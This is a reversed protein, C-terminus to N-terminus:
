RRAPGVVGFRGPACARAIMVTRCDFHQPPGDGGGGRRGSHARNRRVVSVEVKPMLIAQDRVSYALGEFPGLWLSWFIQGEFPACVFWHELGRKALTPPVPVRSDLPNSILLELAPKAALGHTRCIYFLRPCRTTV